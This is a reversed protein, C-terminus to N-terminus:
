HRSRLAADLIDSRFFDVICNRREGHTALCEIVEEFILVCLGKVWVVAFYGLAKKLQLIKASCFFDYRRQPAVAVETNLAIVSVQMQPNLPEALVRLLGWKDLSELVM